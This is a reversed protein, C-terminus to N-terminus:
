TDVLCYLLNLLSTGQVMFIKSHCYIVCCDGRVVHFFQGKEKFINADYPSSEIQKIRNLYDQDSENPDQQVSYRDRNAMNFIDTYKRSINKNNVM